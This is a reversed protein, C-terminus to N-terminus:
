DWGRDRDLHEHADDREAREQDYSERVCERKACTDTRDYHRDEIVGLSDGCFWCFRERGTMKKDNM